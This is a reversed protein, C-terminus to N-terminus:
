NKFYRIKEREEIEAYHLSLRAWPQKELRNKEIPEGSEECIGYTGDEIKALALDIERLTRFDREKLSFTIKQDLHNQAVDGEETLGNPSVEKSEEKLYKFSNVIRERLELLKEKQKLFFAPTLYNNSEEHIVKKKSIAM